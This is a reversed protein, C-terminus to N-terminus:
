NMIARRQAELDTALDRVKRWDAFSRARAIQTLRKRVEAAVTKPAEQATLELRLRRKTAADGEAIDMLLEALRKAGLEELNEANLTTKSAM